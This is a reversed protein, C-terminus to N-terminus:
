ACFNCTETLLYNTIHEVDTWLYTQGKQVIPTYYLLKLKSIYDYDKHLRSVKYLLRFFLTSFM